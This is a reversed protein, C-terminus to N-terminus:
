LVIRENVNVHERIEETEQRGTPPLDAASSKRQSSGSSMSPPKLPSRQTTVSIPSYGRSAQIKVKSNQVLSLMKQVAHPSEIGFKPLNGVVKERHKQDASQTSQSSLSSSSPSPMRRRVPASSGSQMYGASGNTPMSGPAPPECELSIRDLEIESDIVPMTKLYAKVKRFMLMREYLKKRSSTGTTQKFMPQGGARRITGLETDAVIQSTILEGDYQVSSLRSVSRIIQSFMRLKEFNVLKKCYTPNAEHAFILDKRLFPYIPIVPPDQSIQALHQRYKSMNRSPEMLQQIDTLMKLYKGPVREWSHILRRVAPKELGSVIAFMSNLNRFDRCHRAIKIFKKILKSRRYVNRECCIETM